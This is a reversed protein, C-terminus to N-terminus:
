KEGMIGTASEPYLFSCITYNSNLAIMKATTRRFFFSFFSSFFVGWMFLWFKSLSRRARSGNVDSPLQTPLFQSVEELTDKSLQVYQFFFATKEDWVVTPLFTGCVARRNIALCGDSCWAQAVSERLARRPFPPKRIQLPSRVTDFHFSGILHRFQFKSLELIMWFTVLPGLGSHFGSMRNELERDLEPHSVQCEQVSRKIM